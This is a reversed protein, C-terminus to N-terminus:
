EQGGHPRPLASRIAVYADYLANSRDEGRQGSHKEDFIGAESMRMEGIIEMAKTMGAAIDPVTQPLAPMVRGPWDDPGFEVCDPEEGSGNLLWDYLAVHYASKYEERFVHPTVARDGVKIQVFYDTRGDSLAMPVISVEPRESAASSGNHREIREGTEKAIAEVMREIGPRGMKLAADMAEYSVGTEVPAAPPQAAVEIARVQHGAKAVWELQAPFIETWEKSNDAPRAELRVACAQAVASLPQAAILCHKAMTAYAQWRHWGDAAAMARAGAEIMADTVQVAQAVGNMLRDAAIWCVHQKCDTKNDLSFETAIQRLQRVLAEDGVSTQDSKNM